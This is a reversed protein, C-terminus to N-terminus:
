SEGDTPGEVDAALTELRACLEAYRESEALLSEAVNAELTRRTVSLADYERDIPSQGYRDVQREIVDSVAAKSVPKRLSADADVDVLDVDIRDTLLAVLRCESAVSGVLEPVSANGTGPLHEDYLVVTTGAEVAELLEEADHARHVVYEADFWRKFLATLRRDEDAVVLEPVAPALHREGWAALGAFMSELERGADTLSYEVRLPSEAVVRREVVGADILSELTQTLVKASVGPLASELASFGLTGEESLALVVRPAWKKSLLSLTAFLAHGADGSRADM